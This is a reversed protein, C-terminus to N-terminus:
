SPVAYATFTKDAGDIEMHLHVDDYSAIEYIDFHYPKAEEYVLVKKQKSFYRYRTFSDQLSDVGNKLAYHSWQCDDLFLVSEFSDQESDEIVWDKGEFPVASSGFRVYLSFAAIILILILLILICIKAPKKM